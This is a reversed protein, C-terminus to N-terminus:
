WVTCLMEGGVRRQRCERDSLIGQPTSYIAVGIGRLVPRIDEVKRYVRRGPKSERKIEQIVREGHPGWKLYVRLIGQPGSEIRRYDEVFGERKLAALLGEKIKSAPMNVTRHGRLLANRIRTLMDAIPDTMVM